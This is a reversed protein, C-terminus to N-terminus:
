ADDDIEMGKLFVDRIGEPSIKRGPEPYYLIGWEEDLMVRQPAVFPLDDPVHGAVYSWRPGTIRVLHVPGGIEDSVIPSLRDFVEIIRKIDM